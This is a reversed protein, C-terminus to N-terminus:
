SFSFPYRQLKRSQNESQVDESKKAYDSLSTSAHLDKSEEVDVEFLKSGIGRASFVRSAYTVLGSDTRPIIPSSDGSPNQKNTDNVPLRADDLLSEFRSILDLIDREGPSDKSKESKRPTSTPQPINSQASNNTPLNIITSKLPRTTVKQNRRRASAIDVPYTKDNESATSQAHPALKLMATTFFQSGEPDVCEAM